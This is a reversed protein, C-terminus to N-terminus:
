NITFLRQSASYTVNTPLNLPQGSGDFTLEGSLGHKNDFLLEMAPTTTHDSSCLALYQYQGPEVSTKSVGMLWHDSGAYYNAVTPIDGRTENTKMDAISLSYNTSNLIQYLGLDPQTFQAMACTPMGSYNVQNADIAIKTSATASDTYLDVVYRALYGCPGDLECATKYGNPIRGEKPGTGVAFIGEQGIISAKLTLDGTFTPSFTYGAEGETLVSSSSWKPWNRVTNGNPPTPPSNPGCDTCFYSLADGYQTSDIGTTWASDDFFKYWDNNPLNVPYGGSSTATSSLYYQVDHQAEWCQGGPNNCISGSQDTVQGFSSAADIVREAITQTKQTQSSFSFDATISCSPGTKGGGCNSRLGWSFGNTKTVSHSSVATAPEVTQASGNLEAENRVTLTGAYAVDLTYAGKFYYNSDIPVVGPALPTFGAGLYQLNIAKQLPATQAVLTMQVGFDLNGTQPYHVDESAYYPLTCVVNGTHLWVTWINEAYAQRTPDLTAQALSQVHKDIARNVADLASALTHGGPPPKIMSITQGRGGPAFVVVAAESKLGLGTLEKFENKEFGELVIPVGMAKARVIAAAEKRDNSCIHGEAVLLVYLDSVQSATKGPPPSLFEEVSATHGNAKLLDLFQTSHRVGIPVVMRASLHDPATGLDEASSANVCGSGAIPQNAAWTAPTQLTIAGLILAPILTKFTKCTTRSLIAM